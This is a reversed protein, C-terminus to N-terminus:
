NGCSFWDYVSGLLVTMQGDPSVKDRIMITVQWELKKDPQKYVRMWNDMYQAFVNVSAQTVHEKALKIETPTM